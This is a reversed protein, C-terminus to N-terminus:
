ASPRPAAQEALLDLIFRRLLVRQDGALERDALALVEALDDDDVVFPARREAVGSVAPDPDGPVGYIALPSCELVDAFRSAWIPGIVSEGREYKSIQQQSIGVLAGLAELSLSRSKRLRLLNAGRARREHPPTINLRPM